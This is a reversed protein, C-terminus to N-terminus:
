GEVEQNTDIAAAAVTLEATEKVLAEAREITGILEADDFPFGAFKVQDAFAFLEQYRSLLTQNDLRQEIWRMLESTTQAPAAVDFQMELFDKLIRPLEKAVYEGAYDQGHLESKLRDLEETAWEDPSLWSRRRITGAVLATAIAGIGTGAITWWVWRYSASQRATVDIVSQIDRYQKPDSQEEVVSVVQIDVPGTKLSQWQDNVSVQIEQAPFTQKGGVLSELTIRRTWIRQDPAGPMPIDPRDEHKVILLGNLTEPLPPFVVDSGRTANVAMTATFPEAVQVTQRSLTTQVSPQSLTATQADAACVGMAATALMMAWAHGVIRFSLNPKLQM